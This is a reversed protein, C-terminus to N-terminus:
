LEFDSKPFKFSLIEYKWNQIELNLDSKKNQIYSVPGSGLLNSAVVEFFYITGDAIPYSHSNSALNDVATSYDSHIYTLPDVTSVLLSYLLPYGTFPGAPWSLQAINGSITAKPIMATPYYIPLSATTVPFLPTSTYGSAGSKLMGTVRFNYTMQNSFGSIRASNLPTTGNATFNQSVWNDVGQLAWEVRYM